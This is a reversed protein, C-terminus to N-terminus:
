KMNQRMPTYIYFIIEPQNRVLSFEFAFMWFTNISKKRVHFDYRGIKVGGPFRSM